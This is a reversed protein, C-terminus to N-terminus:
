LIVHQFFESSASHHKPLKPCLGFSGTTSDLGEPTISLVDTALIMGLSWAKVVYWATCITHMFCRPAASRQAVSPLLIHKWMKCYSSWYPCSMQHLLRMCAHVCHRYTCGRAMYKCWVFKVSDLPMIKMWSVMQWSLWSGNRYCPRTMVKEVDGHKANCGSRQLDVSYAFMCLCFNYSFHMCSLSSTMKFTKLEFKTLSTNAKNAIRWANFSEHARRLREEINSGGWVKFRCALLVEHFLFPEFHPWMCAHLMRSVQICSFFSYLFGCIRTWYWPAMYANPWPPCRMGGRGSTYAHSTSPRPCSKWRFTAWIEM